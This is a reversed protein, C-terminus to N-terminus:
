LPFSPLEGVVALEEPSSVLSLAAHSIHLLFGCNSVRGVSALDIVM